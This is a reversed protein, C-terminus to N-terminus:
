MWRASSPPRQSPKRGAGRDLVWSLLTLLGALLLAVLAGLVVGAVVAVEAPGGTATIMVAPIVLGATAGIAIGRQILKKGNPERALQPPRAQTLGAPLDATLADLDAYTRSAFAQTVRLDFEAKTLRGQVFAAQLVAAVQDREAHSARLHNRDGAGAALEDGPGAM